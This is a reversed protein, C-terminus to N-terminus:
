GRCTTGLLQWREGKAITRCGACRVESFGIALGSSLTEVNEALSLHKLLQAHEVVIPIRELVINTINFHLADYCDCCIHGLWLEGPKLKM